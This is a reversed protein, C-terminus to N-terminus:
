DGEKIIYIRLIYDSPYQYLTKLLSRSNSDRSHSALVIDNKGTKSDITFGTIALTHFPLGSSYCFQVVDAIYVREAIDNIKEIVEAYTYKMNNAARKIWHNKFSAAVKWSLSIRRDGDKNTAGPKCYWNTYWTYHEPIGDDIFSMGGAHLVQSIFNACDGGGASFSPYASNYNKWYTDIYIKAKVRDYAANKIERNDFNGIVSEESWEDFYLRIDEYLSKLPQKDERLLQELIGVVTAEDRLAAEPISYTSMLFRVIKEKRDISKIFVEDHIVREIDSETIEQM